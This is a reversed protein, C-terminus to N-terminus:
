ASLIGDQGTLVRQLKDIDIDRVSTEDAVAIAGAIGAAQGLAFCTPMVRIAALAERTSSVSRGAVLLQEVREVFDQRPGPPGQTRRNVPFCIEPFNKPSESVAYSNVDGALPVRGNCRCKVAVMAISNFPHPCAGCRLMSGQM